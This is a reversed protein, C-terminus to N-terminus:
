LGCATRCSDEYASDVGMPDVAPRTESRVVPIGNNGVHWEPKGGECLGVIYDCFGNPLGVWNARYWCKDAPNWRFRNAKLASLVKASPKESFRIESRRFDIEVHSM